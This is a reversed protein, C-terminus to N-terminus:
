RRLIGRTQERVAHPLDDDTWNHLSVASTFGPMGTVGQERRVAGCERCAYYTVPGGIDLRRMEPFPEDCSCQRTDSM